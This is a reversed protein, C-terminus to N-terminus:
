FSLMKMGNQKKPKHDDDEDEQDPQIVSVKVEIVKRADTQTVTM